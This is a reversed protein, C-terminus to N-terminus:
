CTVSDASGSGLEYSVTNVNSPKWTPAGDADDYALEVYVDGGFGIVRALTASHVNVIECSTGAPGPQTLPVTAATTNDLAFQGTLTSDTPLQTRAMTLAQDAPTNEAIARIYNTMTPLDPFSLIFEPVPGSPSSFEPGFAPAGEYRNRPQHEASFRKIPAGYGTLHNAPPKPKAAVSADTMLTSVVVIGLVL